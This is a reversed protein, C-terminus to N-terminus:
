LRYWSGNQNSAFQWMQHLCLSSWLRNWGQKLVSHHSQTSKSMWPPLQIPDMALTVLGHSHCHCNCPIRYHGNHSGPFGMLGTFRGTGRFFDIVQWLPKDSVVGLDLSSGDRKGMKLLLNKCASHSQEPALWHLAQRQGTWTRPGLIELAFTEPSTMTQADVKWNIWPCSEVSKVWICKLM